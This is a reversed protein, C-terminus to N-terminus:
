KNNHYEQESCLVVVVVIKREKHLLNKWIEFFQDMNGSEIKVSNQENAFENFIPLDSIIIPKESAMAEIVVLPVDFKGHM